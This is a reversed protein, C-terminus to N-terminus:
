HKPTTTSNASIGSSSSTSAPDSSDSNSNDDRDVAQQELNARHFITTVLLAVLSGVIVGIVRTSAREFPTGATATMMMIIIVTAFAPRIENQINFLYCIALILLVACAVVWLSDSNTMLGLFGVFAGIFNSMIRAKAMPITDTGDPSLIMLGSVFYLAPNAIDFWLTIGQILVLTFFCKGFYVLFSKLKASM